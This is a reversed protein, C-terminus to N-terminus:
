LGVLQSASRFGATCRNAGCQLSWQQALLRMDARTFLIKMSRGVAHM